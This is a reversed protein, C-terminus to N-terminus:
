HVPDARWRSRATNDTGQVGVSSAMETFTLDGNNVYLLNYHGPHSTQDFIFWDEDIANGVYFDLWGDGDVDACAISSASRLNVDEGLASDSIDTFTGDQNNLFLHDRTAKRLHRSAVGIGTASRFDLGDGIIGRAGVYLDKYGDNNLDCAGAGSSNNDFLDVGAEQSLNAFTGGGLNSYLYNSNEANSTVYLDQDGDNDYDFAVASPRYNSVEFGDKLAQRAVNVFPVVDSLANDRGETEGVPGSSPPVSTPDLSSAAQPEPATPPQDQSCALAVLSALIIPAAHRIM